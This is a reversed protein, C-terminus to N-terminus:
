NVLEGEEVGKGGRMVEGFKLQSVNRASAEEEDSNSIIGRVCNYRAKFLKLKTNRCRRRRLEEEAVRTNVFVGVEGLGLADGFSLSQM